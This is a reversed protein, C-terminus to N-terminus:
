EVLCTAQVMDLQRLNHQLVLPQNNLVVLEPLVHTEEELNSNAISVHLRRTMDIIHDASAM